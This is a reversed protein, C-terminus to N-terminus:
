SATQIHKGLSPRTALTNVPLHESLTCLSM